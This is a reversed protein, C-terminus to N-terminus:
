GRPPSAEAAPSLIRAASPMIGYFNKFARTFNPLQTYGCRDAIQAVTLDSYNQLLYKAQQMRVQQIYAKPTVSLTQSLRRRLMGASIHMEAAIADIDTVGREASAIIHESLDQLFKRDDDTLHDLNQMTEAMFNQYRQSVESVQDQLSTIDQEYNKMKRRHRRYTFFVALAILALLLVASVATAALFTHNRQVMQENEKQLIDVHYIANYRAAAASECGAYAEALSGIKGGGNEAQACLPLAAFLCVLPLIFLTKKMMRIICLQM